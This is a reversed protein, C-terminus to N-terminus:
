SLSYYYRIYIFVWLLIFGVIWHTTYKQINKRFIYGLVLAVLTVLLMRELRAPISWLLFPAVPLHQLVAEVSYIKYPIGSLPGAILNQAGHQQLGTAVTQIMSESIGPIALLIKHYAGGFLPALLYIVVASCLSGLLAYAVSVLGGTVTFLGVFSLYVDPVVFFLLGEALGWIFAIAKGLKSKGFQALATYHM